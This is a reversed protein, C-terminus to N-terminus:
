LKIIKKNISKKSNEIKLFYVGSEINSSNIILSEKNVVQKLITSGNLDMLEIDSEKTLGSVKIYDVFPNPFVQIETDPILNKSSVSKDVNISYEIYRDDYSVIKLLYTENDYIYSLGDSWGNLINNGDLFINHASINFYQYVYYSDYGTPLIILIEKNVHDIEGPITDDDLIFSFDFLAFEYLPFLKFESDNSTEALFLTDEKCPIDIDYYFDFLYPVQIEGTVNWELSDHINNIKIRDYKTTFYNYSGSIPNSFTTDSDVTLKNETLYAMWSSSERKVTVVPQSTLEFAFTSDQKVENFKFNNFYIGKWQLSDQFIGPSKEDSCDLVGSTTEIALQDTLSISGSISSSFYNIDMTENPMTLNLTDNKYVYKVNGSYKPYYKLYQTFIYSDDTFHFIYDNCTITTDNFHILDLPTDQLDRSFKAWANINISFTDNNFIQIPSFHCKVSAKGQLYIILSDYYIKVPLITNNDKPLLNFTDKYVGHISGRRLFVQAGNSEIKINEFWVPVIKQPNHNLLKTYGYGSLSDWNENTQTYEDVYIPRMDSYFLSPQAYTSWSYMLLGFVLVAIKRFNMM